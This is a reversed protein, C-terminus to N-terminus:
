CNEFLGDLSDKCQPLSKSLNDHVEDKKLELTKVEQMKADLKNLKNKVYTKVDVMTNHYDERVMELSEDFKEIVNKVHGHLENVRHHSDSVDNDLLSLKCM